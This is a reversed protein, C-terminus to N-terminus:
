FTSIVMGWVQEKGKDKEYIMVRKKMNKFKRVLGDDSEELLVDTFDTLETKSGKSLKAVLLNKERIESVDMDSSLVVRCRYSLLKKVLEDKPATEVQVNIFFTLDNYVDLNKSLGKLADEDIIHILKYGKEQLRKAVDVPKGLLKLIGGEKTFAQKDRIYILPIRLM